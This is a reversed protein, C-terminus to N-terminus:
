TVSFVHKIFTIRQLRTFDMCVQLAPVTRMKHSESRFKRAYHRENRVDSPSPVSLPSPLLSKVYCSASLSITDELHIFVLLYIIKISSVSAFSSDKVIANSVRYTTNTLFRSLTNKMSEVDIRQSCIASSYDKNLVYTLRKLMMTAHNSKRAM